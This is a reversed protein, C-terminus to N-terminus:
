SHKFFTILSVAHRPKVHFIASKTSSFNVLSVHNPFYDVALRELWRTEAPLRQPALLNLSSHTGSVFVSNFRLVPAVIKPNTPTKRLAASTLDGRFNLNVVCCKFKLNM